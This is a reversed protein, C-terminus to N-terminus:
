NGIIRNGESLFIGKMNMELAHRNPPNKLGDGKSNKGEKVLRFLDKNFSCPGTEPSVDLFVQIKDFKGEKIRSRVVSDAVM